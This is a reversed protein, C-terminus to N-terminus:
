ESTKPFFAAFVQDTRNKWSAWGFGDKVEGGSVTYGKEQLFKTLNRNAELMDWQEVESRLDYKGWELYFNLPQSQEDTAVAKLDNEQETLLFTSQGAVNGFVGPHKFTSYLAAFGAFGMGINARAEASAITRYNADIFPVLEEALMQAYKEKLGGTFEEGRSDPLQRIFVVIIPEISKGILNDLSNPMNGWTIALEGWHVYATPYRKESKEYGAPLFIDVKRSQEFIKSEFEVSDVRGRTMEEAESLHEPQTWELMALSSSEGWITSVKTPNLPDPLNEEFNKIFRYSIRADPELYTSYYFFDTGEIRQMPEEYRFPLMDGAIAMDNSEGRFVFHALNEGEIVPFQKQSNMFEDILEKKSESAAVKEVFQAFQSHPAAEMEEREASVVQDIKAVEISAIDTLNRANIRGNAFSAPTWTPNEFLPVSAVEQYGEASAKAIHLGGKKTTIVLHGDVLIIFGDGPQRSKWVSEGTKADLCTLFRSSYGYIYGDHYVPVCYTGKINRSKWVEKIAFQDQNKTLELLVCESWKYQLFLKNGDVVVPNGTQGGGGHRYEWLMNGSQPELGYLYKDGVCVVQKQGDINLLIPSQYNVTDNGASWLLDGTNINFGSVTSQQGGTEVILVDRHILPATAFGYLPEKSNHDRVLHSAWIEGGSKLDLAVLQGKPGLAYVKEGSVLPTSIPGNHSGDHGIYTSDIKFRWEEKGNEPNLAVVYDYTSDSFMTVATGNAVSISSYGSGLPKQWVVKLGDGETFEFVGQQSAVGDHNQGRWQPWDSDSDHKNGSIAQNFLFICALIAFTQHGKIRNERM